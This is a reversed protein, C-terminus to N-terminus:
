LTGVQMILGLAVASSCAPPLYPPMKGAGVLPSWNKPPLLEGVLRRSSITRMSWLKLLLNETNPCKTSSCTCCLKPFLKHAHDLVGTLPVVNPLGDYLPTM